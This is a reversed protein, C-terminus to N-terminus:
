SFTATVTKAKTMKVQCTTAKGTCAGSWGTFKHGSVPHETLTVAQPKFFSAACTSGCNIGKPASTVTGMGSGARNVTLRAYATGQLTVDQPDYLPKYGVGGPPFQGIIKAFKGADSSGGLVTFLDGQGPQFAHHTVIILTGGLTAGGQVGLQSYTTGVHHGNLVATLRGAAGQTYHGTVTFDGPNVLSGPAVNGGSNNLSGTISGQHSSNSFPSELLGGKLLFTGNSGTLDLFQGPSIATTGATQTLTKGPGDFATPANINLKGHTALNGRLERNAGTKATITGANTLTGSTTKIGSACVGTLTITGANTFGSASTVLSEPCGGSNVGQVELNQGHALNGSLAVVDRAVIASAGSATYKLTAGINSGDIVVAPNAPVASAPVTTGGAENFTNGADVLLVGSGNVGNNIVGGVENTVTNSSGFPVTLNTQNAMNITGFNDLTGGTGVGYESPSQIDITGDSSNIVNGNLARVNVGNGDSGFVPQITGHNTLTGASITLDATNGGTCVGPCTSTLRVSGSSAISSDAGLTLTGPASSTGTIDLEAGSLTLSRAQASEGTIAVPGGGSICADTSSTPVGSDWNAANSWDGHASGIWNDCTSGQAAGTAVTLVAVTALLGVAPLGRQANWCRAFRMLSM